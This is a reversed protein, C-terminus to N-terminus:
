GYALGHGRFPKATSNAPYHPAGAQSATSWM